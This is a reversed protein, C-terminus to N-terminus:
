KTAFQGPEAGFQAKAYSRAATASPFSDAHL